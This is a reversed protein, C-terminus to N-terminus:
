NATNTANNLTTYLNNNFIQIGDNAHIRGYVYTNAHFSTTGAFRAAGNVYLRTIEDTALNTANSVSTSYIFLQNNAIGLAPTPVKYRNEFSHEADPADVDYGNVFIIHTNDRKTACMLGESGGTHYSITSGFSKYTPSSNFKLYSQRLPVAWEISGSMIGGSRSLYGSLDITSNLPSWFRHYETSM